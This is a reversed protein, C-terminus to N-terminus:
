LCAEVPLVEEAFGCDVLWSGRLATCQRLASARRENGEQFM